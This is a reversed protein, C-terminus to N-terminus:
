SWYDPGTAHLEIAFLRESLETSQAASAGALEVTVQSLEAEISGVIRAAIDPAQAFQNRFWVGWGSALRLDPCDADDYAGPKHGPAHVHAQINHGGLAVGDRRVTLTFGTMRMPVSTYGTTHTARFASDDPAWSGSKVRLEFTVERV